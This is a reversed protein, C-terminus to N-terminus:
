GYHKEGTYFIKEGDPTKIAGTDNPILQSSADGLFVKKGLPTCAMKETTKGGPNAYSFNIGSACRTAGTKQSFYEGSKEANENLRIATHMAFIIFAVMITAALIAEASNM